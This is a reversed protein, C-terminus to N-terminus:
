AAKQSTKFQAILKRLEDTQQSLSFCAATSEEAMAANQQTADDIKEMVGGFEQVAKGAESVAKVGSSVYGTSKSILERIEKAADASRQALARVETAVVAFGKGADGARAAEVGANLALLNTQFAIEDMVSVIQAIQKSSNEIQSIATVARSIVSEEPTGEKAASGRGLTTLRRLSQMTQEVEIAHSEVRKSLDSSATAIESTGSKIVDINGHIQVVASELKGLSTNFADALRQYAEPMEETIRYGVNGMALQEIAAGITSLVLEREHAVADQAKHEAALRSNEAVHDLYVSIVFDMDMMASKILGGMIKGATERNVSQGFLSRRPWIEDIIADTINEMILAYGGIYWHPELGLRAHTSAIRKAHEVFNQDFRAHGVADWHGVQRNKASEIHSDGSFFRAVEPTKRVKDYFRDLATPLAKKIIASIKSLEARTNDDIEYYKLFANVDHAIKSGSMHFGEM